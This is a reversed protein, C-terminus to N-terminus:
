DDWRPLNSIQVETMKSVYVGNEYTLADIPLAVEHDGIGLFGGIEVAFSVPRGDTDILVDEIEGLKQGDATTVDIDDVVKLYTEGQSKTEAPVADPTGADQALVAVPCAAASILAIMRLM